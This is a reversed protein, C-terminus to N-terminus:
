NRPDFIWEFKDWHEKEDSLLEKVKSVISGAFSVTNEHSFYIAWSFDKDTYITEHGGYEILEATEVCHEPYLFNEGYSYIHVQPLGIIQELEKMHPELYDFMVFFKESVEKPEEGMLPFWLSTNVYGWVSRFKEQLAIAEAGMIVRYYPIEAWELPEEQSILKELFDCFEQNTKQIFHKALNNQPKLISPEYHADMFSLIEAKLEEKNEFPKDILTSLKFRLEDAVTYGAFIVGGHRTYAKHYQEAKNLCWKKLHNITNNFTM